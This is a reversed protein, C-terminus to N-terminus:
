IVVKNDKNLSYGRDNRYKEGLYEPKIGEDLPRGGYSANKGTVPYNGPEVSPFASQPGSTSTPNSTAANTNLSACYNINAPGTKITEGESIKDRILFALERRISFPNLKTFLYSIYCYFKSLKLGILSFLYLIFSNFLGIGIGTFWAITDAWNDNFLSVTYKILYFTFIVKCICIFLDKLSFDFESQLSLCM